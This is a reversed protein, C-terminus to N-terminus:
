TVPADPEEIMMDTVHVAQKTEILRNLSPSQHYPILPNKDTFVAYKAPANHLAVRRFSEGELLFLTGFSADCLRTANSLMAQFVLELEGPSSSIVSLVESTATQQQLSERLENLLRANEIAIVAQDAFTTVLEIQKDTFPAVRQRALNMVGIPEGERILPVGLLTRIKAITIAETLKYDPDSALDAIQVARREQLVRGMITRRGAAASFVATDLYRRQFNVADNALAASTGVATVFRFIDGERRSIFAMEAECLRAASEALTDLVPQLDFTSRSILKLVDATATQQGLAETLDATRQRLENLLRANEIAIVAQAAFNKVLEIQKDTFPRAELRYIVFGGILENGKVMPVLLDARAGSVDVFESFAPDECGIYSKETRVDAIHVVAKTRAMRALPNDPHQLDRLVVPRSRVEAFAQSASHLAAAHFAEGDYLFLHGFEAECLRVANELMASFVPKLEGPSSSIIRLVDATATQQELSESLESTRQQEAEFLRVNEIAIVAQRAFTELLTIQSTPFSGVQARPVAIAGIPDGDRLMPVALISRYTVTQALNLALPAYAPDALVDPIQVVGRHFIARGAATDESAPRPLVRQFAELGETTLGHCAAFRLLENDFRVVFAFRGECIRAANEAITDFVPQIDHPSISIVRLVEATAAQLERAEILERAQRELRAQLDAVSPGGQRMAKSANRREPTTTKRRQSKASQGGARSRRRMAKGLAEPCPM